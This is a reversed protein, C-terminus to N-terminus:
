EGVGPSAARLSYIILVNQRLENERIPTREVETVVLEALYGFNLHRRASSNLVVVSVYGRHRRAIGQTKLDVRPDAIAPRYVPRHRGPASVRISISGPRGFAVPSVRVRGRMWRERLSSAAIGVHLGPGRVIRGYHEVRAM